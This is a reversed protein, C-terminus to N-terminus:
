WTVQELYRLSQPIQEEPQPSEDEIFHYKVGAKEAAKLIPPFVIKGTGIPVDNTVDSHGTLLGTPTSDRMGKLHTLQFRNGYKTLLAVPDQGAHVVWFVDMEYNVFEPKTQTVLLDFLTGDQYPQFEYGHTHLFFKIGQEHLAGGAKNFVDIAERCQKEDFPDKHDIWATGAYELGLAKAEAVVGDLDDRFRAYPFHASVPRLGRKELEAKFAEPSMGYTGALEVDKFGMDRVKDLTGPVDKAFQDRLSYLQLGLPGKFGPGTGVTGQVPAAMLVSTMLVSWLVVVVFFKRPMM